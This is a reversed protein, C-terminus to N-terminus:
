CRRCVDAARFKNTHRDTQGHDFFPLTLRLQRLRIREVHWTVVLRGNRQLCLQVSLSFFLHRNDPRSNVVCGGDGLTTLLLGVVTPQKHCEAVTHVCQPSLGYNSFFIRAHFIGLNQLCRFKRMDCHIVPRPFTKHLFRSQRTLRNSV